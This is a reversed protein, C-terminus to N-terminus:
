SQARTRHAWYDCYAKVHSDYDKELVLADRDDPHVVDALGIDAVVVRVTETPALRPPNRTTGDFPNKPTTM